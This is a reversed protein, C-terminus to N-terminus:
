EQGTGILGPVLKDQRAAGGLPAFSGRACETLTVPIMVKRTVWVVMFLITAV